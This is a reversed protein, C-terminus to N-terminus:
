KRLDVVTAGGGGKNPPAPHFNEVQPHGKLHEAIAKRLIGKGHGHIIRVSEAGSLFAEDLFKDVREVAEDSFLGIVNLEPTFQSELSLEPAPKVPARITSPKPASELVQLDDIRARFTLSGVSILYTGAQISEVTGAQSLPKVWVRDREVPDSGTRSDLRPESGAETAARPGSKGSLGIETEIKKKAESGMRRFESARNQAAKRLREASVRDKLDHLLLESRRTFEQNARELAKEFEVRRAAERQSFEEELRAYEAATAAREEELASRLSSQEDVLSKLMKLYNGALAQDPNALSKAQLLIEEPVGMRRAIELGASAGAIGVLLRYTPRLSREDFEVSANLVGGTQGAWMKLPNYHTTALTTAGCRRFHDVIAVALAAGEEPDTGTGVEDILLLAPPAVEGAMGAINRMHATFTSLNAAISQQDGIDAFVQDFVPLVAEMAPVHFGMLAMLSILGATKLVVTKGGANPGSIVMVRHADDMEFSIPVAHDGAQRLAHELLVHRADRLVFEGARSLKPRVCDFEVSLRAKAQAFDIEGITSTITRIAEQNDRFSDTISLLIRAIEIEEQEHLRVLDNNQDIVTLPEVFTTQGSSSLGHVVGPVHVRSDTRVPIVFRGNRFTIIEEQVSRSQQRLTSELARHIRTRGTQIERRIERLEPSAHDDIEGGPLVKGKIDALLRRLDPIQSTIRCLSPFHEREGAGRFMDRLGMGVSVLRELGLIQRAELATGEVQLRALSEEPDEIGSLGFRQGSEQFRVCETTLDLASEIATFDAVPRLNQVRSHGPPTQLHRALLRLLADLELTEFTKQDM